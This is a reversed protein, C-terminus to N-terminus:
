STTDLLDGHLHCKYEWMNQINIMYLPKLYLLYFSTSRLRTYYATHNSKKIICIHFTLICFPLYRKVKFTGKVEVHVCAICSIKSKILTSKLTALFLILIDQYHIIHMLTSKKTSLLRLFIYILFTRQLKFNICNM